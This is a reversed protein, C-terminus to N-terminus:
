AMMRKGKGTREEFTTLIKGWEFKSRWLLTNLQYNGSAQFVRWLEAIIESVQLGIWFQFNIQWM